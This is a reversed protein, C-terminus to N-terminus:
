KKKFSYKRPNFHVKVHNVVLAFHGFQRKYTKEKHERNCKPCRCWEVVVYWANPDPPSPPSIIGLGFTRFFWHGSCRPEKFEIGVCDYWPMPGEIEIIRIQQTGCIKCHKSSEDALRKPYPAPWYKSPPKVAVLPKPCVFPKIEEM